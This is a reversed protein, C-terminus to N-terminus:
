IRQDEDDRPEVVAAGFVPLRAPEAHQGIGRAHFQAHPVIRVAVGPDVLEVERDVLGPVILVLPESDNSHM